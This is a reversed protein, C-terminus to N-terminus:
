RATRGRGDAASTGTGAAQRCATGNSNAPPSQQRGNESCAATSCALSRERSIIPPAPPPSVASVGDKSETKLTSANAHRNRGRLLSTKKNRGWGTKMGDTLCGTSPLGAEAHSAHCRPQEVPPRAQRAPYFRPPPTTPWENERTFNKAASRRARM